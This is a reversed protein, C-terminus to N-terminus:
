STEMDQGNAITFLAAIFMSTCIDRQSLSKMEKFPYESSPTHSQITIRNGIKQPVEMSNEVM